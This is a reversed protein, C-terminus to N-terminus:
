QCDVDGIFRQGAEERDVIWRDESKAVFEAEPGHRCKFKAVPQCSENKPEENKQRKRREHKTSGAPHPRQEIKEGDDHYQVPQSVGGSGDQAM